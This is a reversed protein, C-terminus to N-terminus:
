GLISALEITLPIIYDPSLELRVVTLAVLQSRLRGSLLILRTASIAPSSTLYPSQSVIACSNRLPM